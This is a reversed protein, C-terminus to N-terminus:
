AAARSPEAGIPLGQPYDQMLQVAANWINEQRLIDSPRLPRSYLIRDTVFPNQLQRVLNTAFRQIREFTSRKRRGNAVDPDRLYGYWHDVFQDAEATSAGAETLERVLCEHFRRYLLEAQPQGPVKPRQGANTFHCERLGHLKPFVKVKGRLVSLQSLMMEPLFYTQQSDTSSQTTQFNERLTPTRYVGYFTSFWIRAMQRCRELPRPTELSRGIGVKCRGARSRCDLVPCYGLATAFEAHQELFAACEQVSEPFLLDDDACFVVFPSELTELAQTCKDILSREIHQYAISLKGSVSDIIAHNEDALQPQSSDVVLFSFTPPWRSYFEFM